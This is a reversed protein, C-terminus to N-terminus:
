PRLAAVLAALLAEAPAREGDIEIASPEGSLLAECWALPAAQARAGPARAPDFALVSIRGGALSLEVDPWGEVGPPPQVHLLCTGRVGPPLRVRSAIVGVLGALDGAMRPVNRPTWRLRWCAALVAVRALLAVLETLEYRRAGRREGPLARALGGAVLEELHRRLTGRSLEPVLRLLETLPQPGDLLARLILRNPRDAILELLRSTSARRPSPARLLAAEMEEALLLLEGGAETLACEVRRQNRASPRRVAIGMEALAELWHDLTRAPVGLHRGLEARGQAGDHLSRLLALTREDALLRLYGEGDPPPRDHESRM